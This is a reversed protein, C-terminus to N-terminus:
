SKQFQCIAEFVNIILCPSTRNPCRSIIYDSNAWTPLHLPTIFIKSRAAIGISIFLRIQKTRGEIQMKKPPFGFILQM